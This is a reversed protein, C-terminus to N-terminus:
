ETRLSKVPNALAAKIAQFSVTVIAIFIVLLAAFVLISWGIQIRYSFDQLWINMFYWGLPLAILTSIAVLKLFDITLRLTIQSVSAGLVKRVGIEKIRTQANYTALAFLGLCAIFISLCTFVMFINGLRSEEKYSKDFADDMFRYDFPQGPAKSAWMNEISSLVGTLDATKLKIAMYGTSSDMFLALAGIDDRLSEYHFDQVVGLIKFYLPEGLEVEQTIRVGLAEEANLGLLKLTSENIIVSTSDSVFQGNFNRGSILKLDLTNLYHEDVKWVQSQIAYQQDMKGEQFFSTSSRSSSVPMFSSVTANQVASLSLVEQRLANIQEGAAYTDNIILVQEKDFGLDKNQIFKLQQSVVLTGVILFVAVGFQFVVLFSRMNWKSSKQFRNGKLTDIPAFKSIVFAPYSGSILGLIITILILWVYFMPNEFPISIARGALDNFFPLAIYSVLVALLMSVFVVIGSETLFQIILQGRNSGLTKRIGVEKARKLSHATSLNMFNVSALFILFLGIFSLIYVNQMDGVQSMEVKNDSHLHIDTLPISHYRIYNGSALFSDATMGPFTRTAWPLVYKELLGDLQLQFNDMNTEPSLKIFTFYNNGGWIDERSAVNGAMAMFITYGKLFSNDPLDEIVGTVQFTEKNNLLLNEGVVDVSGFHNEAATRTMVLTNPKELATKKNGHILELGFMEFFTSDAYTTHLEKINDTKQVDRFLNSGQIRFRTTQEVEAFDRKVAGALPPATEAAKIEAGGFKIEMDIRHIRDSDAFMKDHNLEEYIYLAILLGGAMGIALGLTNILTFFPQNKLGRLGMKFYNRIM